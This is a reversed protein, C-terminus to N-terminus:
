QPATSLRRRALLGLLVLSLWEIGGGGGGGGGGVSGASPPPATVSTTATGADNTPQRDAGGSSVTGTATATGVSGSTANVSITATAGAALSNMDCTLSGNAVACTGGTTTATGPTSNAFTTVVRSTAPDPGENRVTLTYSLAAGTTVSNSSAALQLSFDSLPRGTVSMSAANSAAADGGARTVTGNAINAGLTTVQANVRISVSAGNGELTGFDCSVTSQTHTCTNPSAVIDQVALTGTQLELRVNRARSPGPNTIRALFSVSDNRTVSAVDSVLELAIPAQITSAVDVTASNNATIPDREHGTITAAIQGSGPSQGVALELPISVPTDVRLASLQCTLVQAALACNQPVTVTIWSPLTVRVEAASASHPGRNAIARNVVTITGSFSSDAAIPSSAGVFSLTSLALDPAVEYEVIGVGNAGAILVNPHLPDLIATDFWTTTGPVWYRTEEWTIGGDVSRLFSGPTAGNVLFLTSSLVPDILLRRGNVFNQNTGVEVVAWSAGANTSKFLQNGVAYVVNSNTPDVTISALSGVSGSAAWTLGGDVSKYVGESFTPGGGAYLVNGDAPDVTIANIYNPLGTAQVWSLGFNTTKWAGQEVTSVFAVAGTDDTPDAVVRNIRTLPYQFVTSSPGWTSGGNMSVSLGGFNNAVYIVESRSPPTSVSSLQVISPLAEFLNQNNRPQWGSPTRVFLGRPGQQLVAHITGDDAATFESVFGAHIGTARPIVTTGWDTTLAPGDPGASWLRGQASPDVAASYHATHIRAGLQAAPWSAGGDISRLVGLNSFAIVRTNDFPDFGIWFALEMFAAETWHDGGDNSILIGRSTTALVRNSNGPQVAFGFVWRPTQLGVDTGPSGAIPGIWHEGRDISKFTGQYDITLYLVAANDPDVTFTTMSAQGTVPRPLTTWNLGRDESRYVNGGYSAAFLDGNAAIRVYWLDTPSGNAGRTWTLGADSSRYLYGNAAYVDDPHHPDFVLSNPQTLDDRVLTWSAGGDDTRHLGRFSSAIVVSPRTPHVAISAMSGGDPSNISWSNDGAQALSAIALAGLYAASRM